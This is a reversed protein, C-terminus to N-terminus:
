FIMKKLQTISTSLENEFQLTNNKDIRVISDTTTVPSAHPIIVALLCMGLVMSIFKDLINKM